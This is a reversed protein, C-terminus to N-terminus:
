LESTALAGRSKADAHERDAAQNIEDLGINLLFDPDSQAYFADMGGWIKWTDDKWITIAM